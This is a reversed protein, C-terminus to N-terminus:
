YYYYYYYYYIQFFINNSSFSFKIQLTFNFVILIKFFFLLPYFFLDFTSYSSQFVYYVCIIISPSFQLFIFSAYFLFYDFYFILVFVISESIGVL